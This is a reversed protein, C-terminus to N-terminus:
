INKISKNVADSSWTVSSDYPSDVTLKTTTKLYNPFKNTITNLQLKLEKTILKIAAILNKLKPSREIEIKLDTEIGKIWKKQIAILTNIIQISSFLNGIDAFVSANIEASLSTIFGVEQVKIAETELKLSIINEHVANNLVEAIKKIVQSDKGDSVTLKSINKALKNAKDTATMSDTIGETIRPSLDQLGNFIATILANRDRELQGTAADILIKKASEEESSTMGGIGGHRRKKLFRYGGCFGGFKLPMKIAKAFADMITNTCKEPLKNRVLTIYDDEGLSEDSSVENIAQRIENILDINGCSKRIQDMVSALAFQAMARKMSGNSDLLYVTKVTAGENNIADLRIFDLGEQGAPRIESYPGAPLQVTTGDASFRFTEM